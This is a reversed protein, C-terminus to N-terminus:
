RGRIVTIAPVLARIAGRYPGANLVDGAPQTTGSLVVRVILRPVDRAESTAAIQALIDIM